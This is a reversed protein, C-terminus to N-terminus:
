NKDFLFILLYYQVVTLHFVYVSSHAGERGFGKEGSGGLIEMEVNCGIGVHGVPGCNASTQALLWGCWGLLSCDM